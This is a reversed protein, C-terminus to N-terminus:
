EDLAPKGRRAIESQLAQRRENMEPKDMSFQPMEGEDEEQGHWDKAPWREGIM